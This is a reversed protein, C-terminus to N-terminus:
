DWERIWFVFNKLGLKLKILRIDNGESYFVFFFMVYMLGIM